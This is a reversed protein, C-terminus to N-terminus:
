NTSKEKAHKLKLPKDVSAKSPREKSANPKLTPTSKSAKEVVPKSKHQKVSVTKKTGEKEASM